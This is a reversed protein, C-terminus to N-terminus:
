RRFRRGRDFSARKKRETDESEAPKRDEEERERRRAVNQSTLPRRGGRLLWRLPSERPAKGTKAYKDYLGPYGLGAWVGFGFALGAPVALIILLTGDSM